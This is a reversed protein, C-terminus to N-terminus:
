HTNITPKPFVRQLLIRPIGTTLLNVLVQKYIKQLPEIEEVGVCENLKHITANTPGFEVVQPCIDAIFRGDSTGGGTSLKTDIGTVTKIAKALQRTDPKPMGSATSLTKSGAKELRRQLEYAFMLCALKSRAYSHIKNYGREANLNDFEIKGPLKGAAVTFRNHLDFQLTSAGTHPPVRMTVGAAPDTGIAIDCFARKSKVGKGLETPCTVDVSTSTKAAPAKGKRAQPVPAAVLVTAALVCMVSVAGLARPM